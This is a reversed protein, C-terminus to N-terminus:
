YCPGGTLFLSVIIFCIKMGIFDFRLFLNWYNPFLASLMNMYGVVHAELFSTKSPILHISVVISIFMTGADTLQHPPVM